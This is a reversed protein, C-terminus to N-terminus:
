VNGNEENIKEIAKKYGGNGYNICKAVRCITATSAGTIKNVEVYSKGSLLHSAVELRQVIAQMEQITCIDDFFNICDEKSDFSMVANYFNEIMKKDAKNM